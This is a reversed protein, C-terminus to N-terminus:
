YNYHCFYIFIAEMVSMNSYEGGKESIRAQADQTELEGFPSVFSQDTIQPLCDRSDKKLLPLLHATNVTVSM